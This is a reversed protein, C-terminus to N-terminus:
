ENFANVSVRAWGGGILALIAYLGNIQGLRWYATGIGLVGCAPALILFPLRMPGLLAKLNM